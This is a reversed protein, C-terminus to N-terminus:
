LATPNLIMLVTPVGVAGLTIRAAKRHNVGQSRM